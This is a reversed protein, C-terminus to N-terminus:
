LWGRTFKGFNYEDIAKLPNRRGVLGGCEKCQAKTKHMFRVYKAGNRGQPGLSHGYATAIKRDWLPFFNPAILHLTKAAGVPGLVVEFEEFLPVLIPDDKDTL